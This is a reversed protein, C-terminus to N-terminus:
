GLDVILLTKEKDERALFELLSLDIDEMVLTISQSRCTQGQRRRRIIEAVISVAIEKATLANPFTDCIVAQAEPFRLVNAFSPMDDVVTVSFGLDTGYRCLPQAIHGGGLLILREKQHFNRRYLTGDM